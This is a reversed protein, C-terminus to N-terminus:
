YKDPILYICVYLIGVLALSMPFILWILFNFVRLGTVSILAVGTTLCHSSAYRDYGAPGSDTSDYWHSLLPTSVFYYCIGDRYLTVLLNSGLQNAEVAKQYLKLITFLFVTTEFIM